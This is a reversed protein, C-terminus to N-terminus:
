FIDSEYKKIIEFRKIAIAQYIRLSKNSFAPNPRRNPSWNERQWHLQKLKKLAIKQKKFLDEDAMPIIYHEIYAVRGLWNHPNQRIFKEFIKRGKSPNGGLMKPRGSEYSGNFIQCMGHAIGPEQACVWDFLGKVVPLNAVLTINGRQLNILSGLAQATFLVGELDIQSSSLESDLFQPIGGESRLAKKLDQYTIGNEKLFRFGYDVAKAYTSIAQRRHRSFDKEALKDGLYLTEHVVFSYGAYGKTAAVLLSENTPKIALLGDLLKLNGPVGERFSEWNGESELGPTAEIFLPAATSLAVHRISSCSSSIILTLLLLLSLKM